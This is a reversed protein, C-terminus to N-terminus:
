RKVGKVDEIKEREERCGIRDEYGSERRGLM